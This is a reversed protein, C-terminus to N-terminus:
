YYKVGWISMNNEGVLTFTMVEQFAEDLQKFFVGKYETGEIIITAYATNDKQVWTGMLDGTITGNENLTIEKLSKIIASTDLAHNMFYYTGVIEDVSYGTESIKEENKLFQNFQFVSATLWGDETLFLQHIRPQHGETGNDFRTHYVLYMRGDDDVLASNHGPSMYAKSLSPLMYNGMIKVGYNSHSSVESTWSSGSSDTYPGDPNKSRFLRMNYGGERTLGGYTVFLYYYDSVENYIIYPGECSKHGYGVLHTGFYKDVGNEPDDEPHIVLGTEEDLEVIFIGGSWSGYVMWLRDNKDYFVSPDLANPWKTSNYDSSTWYNRDDGNYGLVDIVNTREVDGAVFGSHILNAQFVYPGEINDSTAFCLTSTNWDSTTCFYMCWKGMAKNYIVDPAWVSYGGQDNKGVWDFAASEFLGSFLKNSSSVSSAFSKFLFGDESKAAEMHSGFIYYMGDDTKVISPDHVSVNSSYTSVRIEPAATPSANDLSDTGIDSDSDNVVSTPTNNNDSDEIDSNNVPTITNNDNLANPENTNNKCAATFMTFCMLICLIKKYKLMNM